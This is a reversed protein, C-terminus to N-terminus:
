LKLYHGPDRELKEACTDCCTVYDDGAIRVHPREADVAFVVGSVPCQTLKEATAGPQALVDKPDHELKTACGFRCVGSMAPDFHGAIKGGVAESAAESPAAEDSPGCAGGADAQAPVARLARGRNGAVVAFAATAVLALAAIGIITRRMNFEGKSVQRATV